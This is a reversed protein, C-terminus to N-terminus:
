SNTWATLQGRFPRTPLEAPEQSPDYYPTDGAITVREVKRVQPRDDSVAYHQVSRNDWFAITNPRWRLRVQYEPYSAQRYLTDLLERSEGPDM